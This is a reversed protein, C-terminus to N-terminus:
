AGSGAAAKKRTGYKPKVAKPPKERKENVNPLDPEGKKQGEKLEITLHTSRKLIRDARGMSRSMFRKMTPGGDAFIKSVYLRKEDMGLVKANAMASRLHKEAMRAAKRKASYLIHLAQNVPKHRIENIVVRVKRPSIKLYRAIARATLSTAVSADQSKSKEKKM